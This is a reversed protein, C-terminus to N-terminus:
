QDALSSIHDIPLSSTILFSPSILTQQATVYMVWNISLDLLTMGDLVLVMLSKKSDDEQFIFTCRPRELTYLDMYGHICIDLLDVFGVFEDTYTVHM